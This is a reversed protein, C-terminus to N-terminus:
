LGPYLFLTFPTMIDISDVRPPRAGEENNSPLPQGDRALIITDRWSM